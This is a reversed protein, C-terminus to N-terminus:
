GSRERNSPERSRLGQHNNDPTISESAGRGGGGARFRSRDGHVSTEDNRRFASLPARVCARGDEVAPRLRCYKTSARFPGCRRRRCQRADVQEWFPGAASPGEIHRLPTKNGPPMGAPSRRDGPESGNVAVIWGRVPVFFRESRGGNRRRSDWNGAFLCRGSRWPRSAQQQRQGIRAVV